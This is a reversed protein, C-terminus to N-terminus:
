PERLFARVGVTWAERIQRGTGGTALACQELGADIRSLLEMEEAPGKSLVNLVQAMHARLLVADGAAVSGVSTGSGVEELGQPVLDMGEDNDAM